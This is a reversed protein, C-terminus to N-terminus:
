STSARNLTERGLFLDLADHKALYLMLLIVSLLGIGLSTLTGNFANFLAHLFAPILLGTSTLLIRRHPYLYAFGLLFSATGTWVSHLVPISTVRLLNLLLYEVDNAAFSQNRGLQYDLGEYIGFGLGCMMGYYALTRPIYVTRRKSLVYVMLVKCLEEPIAVWILFAGARIAPLESSLWQAPLSVFPLKFFGILLSISVLGTGLFCYISTAIRINPAPFVHYFLIAWLVSFYSATLFFVFERSLLGVSLTLLVLPILGVGILALLGRNNVDGLGHLENFPWLFYGVTRPSRSIPTAPPNIDRFRIPTGSRSTAVLTSENVLGDELRKQLENWTLPGEHEKDPHHIFYTM